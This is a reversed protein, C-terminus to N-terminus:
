LGYRAEVSTKFFRAASGQEGLRGGEIFIIEAGLRRAQSISQTAMIVKCGRGLMAVILGEVLRVARPDLNATPEDLLLLNPELAYARALALLRQQGFSLAKASDNAREGLGSWNLASDAKAQALNRGLGAARLFFVLNSRCSRNLMLPKQFVMVKNPEAFGHIEGRNPSIVGQMMKMTLTKGAGNAGLLITPKLPETIEFSLGNLCTKAGIRCYVRVFRM